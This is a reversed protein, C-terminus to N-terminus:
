KDTSFTISNEYDFGRDFRQRWSAGCYVGEKMEVVWAEAGLDGKDFRLMTNYRWTKGKDTSKIFIIQEKDVDYGEMSNHPAYCSIFSGDSTVQLACATEASCLFAFPIVLPESWSYGGDESVAYFLDNQKLARTKPDWIIEDPDDIDYISGYMYMKGDNGSSISGGISRKEILDPFAPGIREFTKGNDKSRSIIVVFSNSNINKSEVHSCMLEGNANYAMRSMASDEYGELFQSIRAVYGERIKIFSM